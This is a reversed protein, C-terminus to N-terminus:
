LCWCVKQVVGALQEAEAAASEHRSIQSQHDAYARLGVAGVSVVPGSSNRSHWRPKAADIRDPDGDVVASSM